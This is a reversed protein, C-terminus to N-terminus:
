ASPAALRFFWIEEPSSSPGGGYKVTVAQFLRQHLDPDEVKRLQRRYRKGDVRVVAEPRELAEFHWRKRPPFGLSCPVYAEGDMVLLWTTRSGEGSQLEIQRIERAFTWDVDPDEVWEGSRLAGGPFIAIPGDAFRAGSALAALELVVVALGIGVWRLARMLWLKGSRVDGM